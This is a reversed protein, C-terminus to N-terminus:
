RVLMVSKRTAVMTGNGTWIWRYSTYPNGGGAGNLIVTRTRPVTTSSAVVPIVAVTDYGVGDLSGYLVDYGATTGSVNLYENQITVINPSCPLGFALTDAGSNTVTRVGTAYVPFVATRVSTGGTPTCQAHVKNSMVTVASLALCVAFGIGKLFRM